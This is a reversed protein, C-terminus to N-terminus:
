RKGVRLDFRHQYYCERCCYPGGLIKDSSLWNNIFVDFKKVDIEAGGPVHCNPNQCRFSKGRELAELVALNKRASALKSNRMIRQCRYWLRRHYDDLFMPAEKFILGEGKEPNKIELIDCIKQIQTVDVVEIITDGVIVKM